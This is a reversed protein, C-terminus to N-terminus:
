SSERQSLLDMAFRVPQGLTIQNALAILEKRLEPQM